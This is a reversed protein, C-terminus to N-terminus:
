SWFIKERWIGCMQKLFYADIFANSWDHISVNKSGLFLSQNTTRMSGWGNTITSRFWFLINHSLCINWILDCWLVFSTRLAFTRSEYQFSPFSVSEETSLKTRSRSQHRHWKSENTKGTYRIWVWCCEDPIQLTTRINSPLYWRSSLQIKLFINSECGSGSEVRVNTRLLVM